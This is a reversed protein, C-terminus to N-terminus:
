SKFFFISVGNYVKGEDDENWDSRSNWRAFTGNKILYNSYSLKKSWM